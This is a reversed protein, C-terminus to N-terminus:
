GGGGCRAVVLRALEDPPPAGAPEALWAKYAALGQASLDRQPVIVEAPTPKGFVAAVVEAASLPRHPNAMQVELWAQGLAKGVEMGIITGLGPVALGHLLATYQAYALHRDSTM